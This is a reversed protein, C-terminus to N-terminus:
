TAIVVYEASAHSEPVPRSNERLGHLHLKIAEYMNHEVEERPIKMKRKSTSSESEIYSKRKPGEALRLSDIETVSFECGEIRIITRNNDRVSCGM